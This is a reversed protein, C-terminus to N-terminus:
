GISMMNKVFELVITKQDGCIDMGVFSLLIIAKFLIHIILTSFALTVIVSHSINIIHTFGTAHNRYKRHRTDYYRVM